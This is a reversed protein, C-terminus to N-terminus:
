PCQRGGFQIIDPGFIERYTEYDVQQLMAAYKEYQSQLASQAVTISHSSQGTNLNSGAIGTDMQEDLEKLKAVLEASTYLAM